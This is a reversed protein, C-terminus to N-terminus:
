LKQGAKLLRERVAAWKPLDPPLQLVIHTKSSKDSNRLIKYLNFAFIAPDHSLFNVSFHCDMVDFLWVDADADIKYYFNLLNTTEDFLYLIKNPQYHTLKNGSIPLSVHNAEVVEIEPIAKSIDSVLVSGPRLVSAYYDDTCLLITSEIGVVCDGGDLIYLSSDSFSEQVHLASTPSVKGYMNASPAALPIQVFSLVQQIIPHNPCRIAVTSLSANVKSSLSGPRFNLVLTLPGPWFKEILRDVYSPYSLVWNTLDWNNGVHVILPHDAPRQKCSYIKAVALDNDARAALGYVTETPVAVLNNTLLLQAAKKYDKIIMSSDHLFHTIIGYKETIYHRFM